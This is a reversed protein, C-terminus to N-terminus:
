RHGVVYAPNGRVIANNPVNSLVVAGLSVVAGAGVTVGPAVVSRAAIWAESQIHIPGLRLSFSPNRYDHNGTCLYVGQSLCM